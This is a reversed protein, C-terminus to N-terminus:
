ATQGVTGTPLQLDVQLGEARWHREIQGGMSSALQDILKTGFGTVAPPGEIPPGGSERWRLRLSPHAGGEDTDGDSWDIGVQGDPVSLAGHKASNTALEHLALSVTNAENESLRHPDGEISFVDGGDLYPEMVAGILSHLDVGARTSSANLTLSHSRSLAGIRAEILRALEDADDTGRASMRVIAPVLAFLNKVRHNVERLMLDARELAAERELEAERRGTIDVVVGSFRMPRGEDDHWCRGHSLLWRHGDQAQVGYEEEFQDGTEVATAVAARVRERDAEDIRAFFRESPLGHAAAMPDLGYVEAFPPDVAVTDAGVDWDYTGIARSARLADALRESARDARLRQEAKESVDWQSGFYYALRGDEAYIPSVHLANWFPTGDKRYNLLEFECTDKRALCGKLQAVEERDTDPGQLFRCNRGVIEDRDYGTLRCFADNCAIIPNDNARPDTLVMGLKTQEFLQDLVDGTTKIRDLFHNTSTM